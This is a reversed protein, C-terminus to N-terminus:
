SAAQTMVFVNRPLVCCVVTGGETGHRVVLTAGLTHARYNMIELGLGKKPLRAPLGCGDDTVTLTVTPEDSELRITIAAPHAHRIANQVAEQAIRYLHTAAMQDPILVPEPCEFRCALEDSLHVGNVLEQLAVMLGSPENAVPYLGHTVRRTQEIGENILGTIRVAESAEPAARASLKQQLSRCLLAIGTLHQCVGDHLDQGIRRQERESIELVEREMRERHAVDEKLIVTSFAALLVAFLSGLGIVLTVRRALINAAQDREALLENEMKQMGDVVRRIEDMMAKGAATPALAAYRGATKQLEVARKLRALRDHALREFDALRQRLRADMILAHLQVFDEDVDHLSHEYQAFYQSEGTLIFGRAESEVGALDGMTAELTTMIRHTQTVIATSHIFERIGLYSVVGIFILIVLGMSFGLAIKRSLTVEIKM